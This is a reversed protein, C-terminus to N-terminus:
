EGEKDSKSHAIFSEALHQPLIEDRLFELTYTGEGGTVSQLFSSYQQVEAFPVEAHVVQLDGLSDMGIVRGRRSSIDGTIDGM